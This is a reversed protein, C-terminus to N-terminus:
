SLEKKLISILLEEAKQKDPQNPLTSRVFAEQALVFLRDTEKQVKELSWKGSKIDKLECADERFVRLVGDGLYEICMRMLRICHSMNKTDYGYKQVLEYRKAGMYAQKMDGFHLARHVQGHAYGTFSHYAQKSVFLNRNDLIMRGTPSIHIYDKEQLWLLAMVNPNQGLLLRFAKKIEYVVSDWEDKKVEKQEFKGLGYYVNEPGLAIGLIDIDDICDPNDKKIQTGHSISGVYGLLLTRDPIIEYTQDVSLGSIKINRM